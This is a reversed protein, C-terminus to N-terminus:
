QFQIERPSLEHKYRHLEAEKAPEKCVIALAHTSPLDPTSQAPFKFNSSSLQLNSLSIPSSDSDTLGQIGQQQEASNSTAVPSMTSSQSESSSPLSLAIMVALASLMSSALFIACILALSMCFRAVLDKFAHNYSHPTIINQLAHSTLYSARLEM